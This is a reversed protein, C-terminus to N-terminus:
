RLNTSASGGNLVSSRRLSRHLFDGLQRFGLRFPPLDQLRLDVRNQEVLSGLRRERAWEVLFLTAAREHARRAMKRQEARGGLEVAAGAPRAKEFRDGSAHVRLSVVPED